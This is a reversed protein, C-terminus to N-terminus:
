FPSKSSWDCYEVNSVIINDGEIKITINTIGMLKCTPIDLQISGDEQKNILDYIDM